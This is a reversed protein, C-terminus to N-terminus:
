AAIQRVVMATKSNDMCQCSLQLAEAETEETNQISGVAFFWGIGTGPKGDQSVAKFRV